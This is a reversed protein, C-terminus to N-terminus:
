TALHCEMKNLAGLLRSNAGRSSSTMERDVLMCYFICAVGSISFFFFGITCNSRVVNIGIADVQLVTCCLVSLKLSKARIRIQMSQANIM